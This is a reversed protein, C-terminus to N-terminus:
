GSSGAVVVSTLMRHHRVQRALGTFVPFALLLHRPLGMYPHIPGTYCRFSLLLIPAVYVRYSSRIHRRSLMAAALFGPALVLSCVLDM